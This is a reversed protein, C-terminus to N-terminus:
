CTLFAYLVPAFHVKTKAYESDSLTSKHDKGQSSIKFSLWQSWNSHLRVSVDGERAWGDEAKDKV